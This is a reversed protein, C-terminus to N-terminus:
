RGRSPANREGEYDITWGMAEIVRILNDEPVGTRTIKVRQKSHFVQVQWGSRPVVWIGGENIYDFMKRTWEVSQALGASTDVDYMRAM